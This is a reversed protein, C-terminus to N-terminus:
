TSGYKIICLVCLHIVRNVMEYSTMTGVYSQDWLLDIPVPVLLLAFSVRYCWLLVGRCRPVHM